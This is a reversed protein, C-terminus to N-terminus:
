CTAADRVRRTRKSVTVRCNPFVAHAVDCGVVDRIDKYIVEALLRVRPHALDHLAKGMVKVGKCLIHVQGMRFPLSPDFKKLCCPLNRIFRAM